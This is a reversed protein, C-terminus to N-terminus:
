LASRRRRRAADYVEDTKGAVEPWAFHREIYARGRDVMMSGVFRDGLLTDIHRALASADGFPVLFGAGARAVLEGCGCDGSVVVPTGSLLGEFPVLGFIEHVSPYVLVDADALVRLRDPGVLLGVFHVRGELDLDDRRSRLGSMEGTMDNGAVVLHADKQGVQAFADLLHAVGKRPTIKGLYLVMPAEGIGIRARFSGREPRAEFEELEIGNPVLHIRDAGIGAQRFQAVEARSVAIFMDCRKLVADGVLLDWVRKATQKRELIPLTGNPTMVVPIDHRRAERIALNNLLHRHGHLHIVDHERAASALFRGAGTPLFLQHQYALENSLNRFREVRMGTPEAEWGMTHTRRQEDLADTTVVTVRHGMRVQQRALGYVLRPIGGYAWAPYFYPVVHLVSCSV